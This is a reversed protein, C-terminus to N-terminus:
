PAAGAQLRLLRSQEAYARAFQQDLLQDFRDEAERALQAHLAVFGDWLRAKHRAPLVADLAGAGRVNREVAPPGLQGLAGQLAARTGAILALEHACLDAVADQLARRPPMFLANDQRRPDLLLRLAEQVDEAHKLPNNSRAALQTCDAIRLEQKLQTRLRLMRMLGEVAGRLLEGALRLTDEAPAGELDDPALGLATALAQLARADGADLDAPSPVAGPLVAAPGPVPTADVPFSDAPVFPRELDHACLLAAHAPPAEIAGADLPWPDGPRDTRGQPALLAALPDLSPAPGGPAESLLLALPDAEASPPQALLQAQLLYDGIAVRDGDGLPVTGGPPVARGNVAVGNVQSLVTLLFGDQRWRVEVHERSVHRQPDPLALACTRGRGIRGGALGFCARLDGPQGPPPCQLTTLVLQM